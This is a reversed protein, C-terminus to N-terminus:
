RRVVALSARQNDAQVRLFGVAPSRPQLSTRRAPLAPGQHFPQAHFQRDQTSIPRHSFRLHVLPPSSFASHCIVFTSFHRLGFSSNTEGRQPTNENNTMQIENTM